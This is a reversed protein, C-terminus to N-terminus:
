FLITYGFSLAVTTNGSPKYHAPYYLRLYSTSYPKSRDFTGLKGSVRESNIIKEIGFGLGFRTGSSIENNIKKNIFSIGPGIYYNFDSINAINYSIDVNLDQAEDGERSWFGIGTEVFFNEKLYRRYTILPLLQSKGKEGIENVGIGLSNQVFSKQSFLSSFLFIFIFKKM